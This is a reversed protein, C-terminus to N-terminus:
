GFRFDMRRFSGSTNAEFKDADEADVNVFLEEEARTSNKELWVFDKRSVSLEKRSM